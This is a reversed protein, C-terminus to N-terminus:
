KIDWVSRLRLNGPKGGLIKVKKEGANMDFYNDSLLLDENRNRIEVSKAYSAAKVTITDGKVTYTLKPDKWHFYKPLSFIVTGESITENGDVLRYSLYEDNIAIDPLEVEDLWVASLAPSKVSVSKERLIKANSSRIEWQVTLKRESLTENAVSLRFSKKIAAKILPQLNPNTGQTLLGEEMCSIMLPQYFRKAYYHLAKWRF